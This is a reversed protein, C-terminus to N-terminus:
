FFVQRWATLWDDASSVVTRPDVLEVGPKLAAQRALVVVGAEELRRKVEDARGLHHDHNGLVAYVPTGDLRGCADALVGAEDPDGHTTLDGALLVLDVEGRLEDFARELRPRHAESAHVDGAAAIRIREGM